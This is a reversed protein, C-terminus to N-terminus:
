LKVDFSEAAFICYYHYLQLGCDNVAKYPPPPVIQVNFLVARCVLMVLKM